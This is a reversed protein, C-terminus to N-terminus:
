GGKELPIGKRTAFSGSEKARTGTQLLHIREKLTKEKM